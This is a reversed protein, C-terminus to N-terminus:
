RLSLELKNILEKIEDIRVVESIWEKPINEYGYYMGALGGAVIGTTDTDEGLNVARLVSAKYNDSKLFSWIAATLTNVVYGSSRIEDENRRHLNGDLVKTFVRKEKEKIDSKNFFELFAVCNEEYATVKDAGSLLRYAYDLYFKCALISRIHGHTLSSVEAILKFREDDHRSNYLFVLPLIRMLSGNGNDDEHSGGVESLDYGKKIKDIASRTIIGIDFVRGHPTLYGSDKWAVFKEALKKLEYGEIITELLCLMLSSDDSWTGKPQHHVGFERMGIVPFRKLSERSRMEVPVGLADGIVAGLIAGSIRDMM